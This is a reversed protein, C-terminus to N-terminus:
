WTSEVHPKEPYLSLFTRGKEGGPVLVLSGWIRMMKPEKPAWDREMSNVTKRDLSSSINRDCARSRYDWCGYAAAEGLGAAMRKTKWCRGVCKTRIKHLVPMQRWITSGKKAM